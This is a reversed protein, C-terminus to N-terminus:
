GAAKAAAFTSEEWMENSAGDAYYHLLVLTPTTPSADAADVGRVHLAPQSPARM